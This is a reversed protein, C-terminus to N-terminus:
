GAEDTSRLLGDRVRAESSEAEHKRVQAKESRM